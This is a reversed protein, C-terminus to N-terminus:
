FYGPLLWLNFNLPAGTHGPSLMQLRLALLELGACYLIILTPLVFEGLLDGPTIVFLVVGVGVGLSTYEEM